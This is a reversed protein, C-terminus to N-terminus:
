GRIWKKLKAKLGFPIRQLISNRITNNSKYFGYEFDEYPVVYKPHRLPFELQGEANYQEQMRESTTHTAGEGFGINSILGVCPYISLQNHASLTFFWQWDWASVYNHEIAKIRYKWYNTDKGNYGNNKIISKFYPTNKWNMNLDMNKWARKWTAWGWTAKYKSFGYSDPIDVKDIYNPAGIMGIREDNEYKSLLEEAFPFFSSQLVCDDEIIIGKDENEFLWNIATYVGMCCGLNKKRFLTKVECEWDIQQLIAQQTAKVIEVEGKIHERAGDCAIYLKAPKVQKIREFSKLAVDKRRFIIFLIPITYM